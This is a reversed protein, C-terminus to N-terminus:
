CDALFLFGFAFLMLLHFIESFLFNPLFAMSQSQFDIFCRCIKWAFFKISQGDFGDSRHGLIASPQPLFLSASKELNRCIAM